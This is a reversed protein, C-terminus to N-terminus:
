EHRNNVFEWVDKGFVVELAKEFIYNDYNNDENYRNDDDVFDIYEQCINRLEGLDYETAQIPKKPLPKEDLVTDCIINKDINWDGKLEPYFEWFLGSHLLKNYNSKTNIQKYKEM